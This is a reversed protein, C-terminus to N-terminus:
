TTVKITNTAEGGELSFVTIKVIDGVVLPAPTPHIESWDIYLNSGSGLEHITGYTYTTNYQAPKFWYTTGNRQIEIMGVTLNINTGAVGTNNFYLGLRHVSTTLPDVNLVLSTLPNITVNVVASSHALTSNVALLMDNTSNVSPYTAKFSCNLVIAQQLGIIRNVNGLHVNSSSLTFMTNNVHLQSLTAPVTGVNKVAVFATENTLAFTFQNTALVRIAEGSTVTKIQGGDAAVVKGSDNIAFVQVTQIADLTLPSEHVIITRTEGPNFFYSQGGAINWGSYTTGNVRVESIGLHATGTNRVQVKITGNINAVSSALNVPMFARYRTMEPTSYNILNHSVLFANGNVLDSEPLTIFDNTFAISATNACVTTTFSDSTKEIMSANVQLIQGVPWQAGNVTAEYYRSQNVPIVYTQNLATISNKLVPVTTTGNAANYRVTINALNVASSGTNSIVFDVKNPAVGKSLMRDAHVSLSSASEVIATTYHTFSYTGNSTPVSANVFFNSIPDGVHLNSTTRGPEKWDFWFAKQQGPQVVPTGVYPYADIMNNEGQVVVQSLLVNTVNLPHIGTNTVNVNGFGNDYVHIGTINFDSEIPTYDIKFIKVTTNGSFFAPTFCKFKFYDPADFYSTWLNGKDDKRPQYSSTGDGSIERACWYQLETTAKDVTLPEGYFLMRVLLSNFWNEKYAGSTDNVYSNYDFLQTGPKYWLGQDYCPFQTSNAFITSHDNPIKVMWPWKGEDGGIGSIMHGFYVMVYDAHLAKLIRASQLENDNMLASGVMAIRTSNITTNDNVTTVNGLITMYDGYDWWSVIVTGPSLNTKMWTLSQEWDHFDGVILETNALQTASVTTAQQVQVFGLIAIFAFVVYAVSPDMGQRAERKRIRSAPAAKKMTIAGFSKLIMAIGYAGLISAFPSFLMIIRTLSGTFYYLAIVSVIMIIDADNGRKYAFYIGPVVFLLPILTNYYFTVWASPMQEGVSAVLAVSNRYTPDLVTIIRATFTDLKGIANLYWLVVAVVIIAPIISKKVVIWFNKYWTPSTLKKRYLYEIFPLLLMCYFAPFVETNIFTGSVPDRPEVFHIIIGIGLVLTNGLMIGTHYKKAIVLIITFLPIFLTMYMFGGWGIMVYGLFFGGLVGDMLSDRKLCRIYFYVCMLIAFTGITENDFFGSATRQLYGPSFAVFFASLLGTKKDLVEKGVLYAAMTGLAGMFAPEDFCAQMLTVKIGLGNVIYYLVLGTLPTGLYMGNLPAGEPYWTQFDRWAEFATLGHAQIYEACRFQVWPDFEKLLYIGNFDPSLRIFIACIFILILAIALIINQPVIKMSSRSKEWGESFLKKVKQSTTPM